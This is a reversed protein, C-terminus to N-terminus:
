LGYPGIEARIEGCAGGVLPNREFARYLHWLSETEPKTGVDLLMTVEPNITECIAEFFWKHSNIKKANKEKLVFIIQTPVIHKIHNNGRRHVLTLGQRDVGVQTTFEFLHAKVAKNDVSTRMLGGAYCGMVNLVTLVRPNIKQRGDSVIVVVFNKWGDKGWRSEDCM